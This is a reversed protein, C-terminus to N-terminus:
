LLAADSFHVVLRKKLVVFVIELELRPMQPARWCSINNYGETVDAGGTYFRSSEVKQAM